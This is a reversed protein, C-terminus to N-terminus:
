ERKIPCEDLYAIRMNRLFLYLEEDNRMNSNIEIPTSQITNDEKTQNMNM